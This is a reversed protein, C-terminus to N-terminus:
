VSNYTREITVEVHIDNTFAYKTWYRLHSIKKLASTKLGFMHIEYNEMKKSFLQIHFIFGM